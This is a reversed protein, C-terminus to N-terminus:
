PVRRWLRMWRLALNSALDVLWGLLGGRIRTELMRGAAWTNTRSYTPYVHIASALDRVKLHGDLVHIWEQISEGARGSVITVGLVDSDKHVVKIFGRTDDEALARDVNELAVQVTSIADGHRDHAEAETLGAHAVEPETFTTWPVWDRKGRSAGPLLLNRVAVRAQWDAYHTFQYGGLCDGAAYIHSQSTQLHDNVDIGRESYAVGAADLDLGEVNPRRGVAMLLADGVVEGDSTTVHIGAEDESVKEAKHSLRVDVGESHLVEQMLVSVEPEDRPLVVDLAELLTVEAGLRRFAQSLECGIPGAGIVILHDPLTELDWVTDSTLYSVEDIGPIPLIFPHAGTAIVVNRVKFRTDGVALTHPDVFHAEGLFVDMGTDRLVDPTEEAYIEEIIDHVRGMAERFDVRPESASLGYRGATRVDHAVKAAKLLSKSPVCGTWTCDGGVRDREILAVDAGAEMGFSAATLGGSGAGIVALDYVEAMNM